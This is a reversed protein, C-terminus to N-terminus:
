ELEIEPLGLFFTAPFKVGAMQAKRGPNRSRITLFDRSEIVLIDSATVHIAIHHYFNYTGQWTRFIAYFRTEAPKSEPVTGFSQIAILSISCVFFALLYEL